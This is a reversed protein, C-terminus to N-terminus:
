KAKRSTVWGAACAVVAVAAMLWAGVSAYASIETGGISVSSEGAMIFIGVIALAVVVVLASLLMNNIMNFNFKFKLINLNRLIMIIASLILVSAVVIMIITSIKFLTYGKVKSSGDKLLDWGSVGDKESLNIAEVTMKMSMWHLALFVFTLIGAAASCIAGIYKKM